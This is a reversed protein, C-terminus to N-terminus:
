FGGVTLIKAQLQKFTLHISFFPKLYFTFVKIVDANQIVNLRMYLLSYLHGIGVM